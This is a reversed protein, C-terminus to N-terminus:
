DYAICILASKPVAPHVVQMSSLRHMLQEWETGVFVNNSANAGRDSAGQAALLEAQTGADVQPIPTVSPHTGDPGAAAAGRGAAHGEGQLAQGANPAAASADRSKRGKRRGRREPMLNSSDMEAVDSRPAAEDAPSPLRGGAAEPSEGQLGVGQVVGAMAARFSGQQTGVLPISAHAAPLGHNLKSQPVTRSSVEGVAAAHRLSEVKAERKRREPAVRAHAAAWFEQLLGGQGVEDGHMWLVLPQLADLLLEQPQVHAAAAAQLSDSDGLAEAFSVVAVHRIAVDQSRYCLELFAYSARIMDSQRHQHAKGLEMWVDFLLEYLTTHYGPDYVHPFSAKAHLVWNNSDVYPAPPPTLKPQSTHQEVLYGNYDWGALARDQTRAAMQRLLEVQQRQQPSAGVLEQELEAREAEQVLEQQQQLRRREQHALLTARLTRQAEAAAAMEALVEQPTATPPAGRPSAASRRRVSPRMKGWGNGSAEGGNGGDDVLDYPGGPLGSDRSRGSSSGPGREEKSSNRRENSGPFSPVSQPAMGAAPMFPQASPQQLQQLEARRHSRRQKTSSVVLLGQDQELQQQQQQQFLPAALPRNRGRAGDRGASKMPWQAEQMQAGAAAAATPQADPMRTGPIWGPGGMQVRSSSGGSSSGSSSGLIPIALENTHMSGTSSASAPIPVPVPELLQFLRSRRRRASPLLIPAAEELVGEQQQQQQQQQQQSQVNPTRPQEMDQQDHAFAVQQETEPGPKSSPPPPSPSSQRQNVRSALSKAIRSRARKRAAQEPAAAAVDSPSPSPPSNRRQQSRGTKTGAGSSASQQTSQVSSDVTPSPPIVKGSLIDDLSIDMFSEGSSLKAPTENGTRGAKALLV